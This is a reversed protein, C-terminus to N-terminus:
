PLMSIGSPKLSVSCLRKAASKLFKDHRAKIIRPFGRQNFLEITIENNTFIVHVIRDVNLITKVAVFYMNNHFIILYCVSLERAISLQLRSHASLSLTSHTGLTNLTNIDRQNQEILLLSIRHIGSSLGGRRLHSKATWM